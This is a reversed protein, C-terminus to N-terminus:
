WRWNEEKSRDKTGIALVQKQAKCGDSAATTTLLFREFCALCFDAVGFFFWRRGDGIWADSLVVVVVGSGVAAVM